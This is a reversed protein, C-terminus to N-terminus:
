VERVGLQMGGDKYKDLDYEISLIKVNLQYPYDFEGFDYNEFNTPNGYRSCIDPLCTIM